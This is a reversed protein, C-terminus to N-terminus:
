ALGREGQYRLSRLLPPPPPTPMLPNETTAPLNAKQPSKVPVLVGGGRRSGSDGLVAPGESYPVCRAQPLVMPPSRDTMPVQRCDSASGGCAKRRRPQWRRSTGPTRMLKAPTGPM